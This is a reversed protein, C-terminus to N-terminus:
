SVLSVAEALYSLPDPRHSHSLHSHLSIYLSDHMAGAPIKFHPGLHHDITLAQLRTPGDLENPGGLPISFFISSSLIPFIRILSKLDEPEAQQASCLRWPKLIQTVLNKVHFKIKTPVAVVKEM